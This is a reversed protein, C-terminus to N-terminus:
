TAATVPARWVPRAVLLAGLTGVTAIAFATRPSTVEVVFGGGLYAVLFGAAVASNMAGAMRGLM